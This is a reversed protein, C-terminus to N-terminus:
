KKYWAAKWEKSQLASLESTKERRAQKVMSLEETIEKCMCSTNIETEAQRRRNMKFKLQEDLSTIDEELARM